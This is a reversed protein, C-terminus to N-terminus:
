RTYSFIKTPLSKSTLAKRKCNCMAKPPSCNSRTKSKIKHAPSLSPSGNASTTFGADAPPKTCIATPSKISIAAAPRTHGIAPTTIAIGNQGSLILLPQQGAQDGKGSKGDPDTNTNRELNHTANKPPASPRQNQQIGNPHRCQHNSQKQWNRASQRTASQRQRRTSRGSQSRCRTPRQCSDRDLQKGGANPQPETTLLLGQAARFAGANDTRLEFGEGRPKGKGEARPHILYGQNLQSKGHESSLKTRIEGTTDDLLFENYRNGQYEKSKIGSLMKNAPLSGAESFNPPNHQGNYVAGVVIPRDIDGEIFEVLVEQGIRPIFQHGWAAGASPYAVRVWCSSFDTKDASAGHKAIDHDKPRVWHFQIKIRGFEDTFIEEGAPGVVTATQLGRAGPKAHSTHSFAPVIPITKRVAEIQNSYGTETQGLDPM